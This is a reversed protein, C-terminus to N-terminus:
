RYLAGVQQFILAQGHILQNISLSYNEKKILRDCKGRAETFSYTDIPKPFM